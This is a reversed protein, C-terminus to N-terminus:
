FSGCKYIEENVIEVALELGMAHARAIDANDPHYGKLNLAKNIRLKLRRRVSKLTKIRNM